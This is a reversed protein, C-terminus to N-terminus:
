VVQGRDLPALRALPPGHWICDAPISQDAKLSANYRFLTSCYGCVIESEDGMDCYIHPHDFPPSAGMCMFERVGIEIVNAGIDNHFYPTKYDVM